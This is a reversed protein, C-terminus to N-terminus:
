VKLPEKAQQIEIAKNEQILNSAEKANLLEQEIDAELPKIYNEIM